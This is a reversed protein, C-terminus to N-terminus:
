FLMIFEAMSCLSPFNIERDEHFLRYGFAYLNVETIYAKNMFSEVSCEVM